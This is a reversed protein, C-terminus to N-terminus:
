GYAVLNVAEAEEELERMMDVPKCIMAALATMSNRILAAEIGYLFTTIEKVRNYIVCPELNPVCKKGWRLLSLIRRIDYRLEQPSSYELLDVCRKINKSHRM